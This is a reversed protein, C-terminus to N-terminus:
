NEETAPTCPQDNIDAEVVGHKTMHHIGHRPIPGTRSTAPVQGGCRPCTRLHTPEPQAPETPKAAANSFAPLNGTM